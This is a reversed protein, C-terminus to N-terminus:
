ANDAGKKKKRPTKVEQLLPQGANNKDSLLVAVRDKTTKTGERPYQDGVKYHYLGDALDRFSKIVLYM